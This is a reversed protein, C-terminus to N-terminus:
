RQRNQQLEQLREVTLADELGISYDVPPFALESELPDAAEIDQELLLLQRQLEGVQEQSKRESEPIMDIPSDIQSHLSMLLVSFIMLVSLVGIAIGIVGNRSKWWPQTPKESKESAITAHVDEIVVDEAFHTQDTIPEFEDGQTDEQSVQLVKPVPKTEKEKKVM